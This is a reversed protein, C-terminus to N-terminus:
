RGGRIIVHLYGVMEVPSVFLFFFCFIDDLFCDIAAADRTLLLQNLIEDKAYFDIPIRNIKKTMRAM